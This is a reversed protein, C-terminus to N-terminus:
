NLGRGLEYLTYNDLGKLLYDDYYKIPPSVILTATSQLKSEFSCNDSIYINTKIDIKPTFLQTGISFTDIESLPLPDLSSLSVDDIELLKCWLPYVHVKTLIDKTIHSNLVLNEHIASSLYSYALVNAECVINLSNDTTTMSTKLLCKDLSAILSLENSEVLIIMDNNIAGCYSQLPLLVTSRQKITNDMLIVYPLVSANTKLVIAAPSLMTKDFDHYHVLGDIIIDSTTHGHNIIIDSLIIM